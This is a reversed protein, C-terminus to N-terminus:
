EFFGFPEDLSLRHFTSPPGLGAASRPIDAAGFARVMWPRANSRLARCEPRMGTPTGNRPELESKERSICALGLYYLRPGVHQGIRPDDDPMVESGAPLLFEPFTISVHGNPSGRSPLVVLTGPQMRERADLVLRHEVVSPDVPQRMSPLPLAVLSALVGARLTASAINGMRASPSLGWRAAIAVSTAVGLLAGQYRVADSSCGVVTFFPLAVATACAMSVARASSGQRRLASIMWCVVLLVLVPSLWTPDLFLNCATFGCAAQGLLGHEANRQTLMERCDILETLWAAGVVLLAALARRGAKIDRRATLAWAWSLGAPWALMATHSLTGLAAAGGGAAMLFPSGSRGAALVLALSWPVIWAAITLSTGSVMLMRALPTFAFACGAALGAWASRTLVTALLATAGAAAAGAVRSIRFPDAHGTLGLEVDAVLWQLSIGGKGHIFPANWTRRVPMLVEEAERWAHGNAHLPENGRQAVAAVAAAVSVAVVLLARTGGVGVARGCAWCLAPGAVILLAWAIQIVTFELATMSVFAM